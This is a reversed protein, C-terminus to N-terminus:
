IGHLADTLESTIKNLKGMSESVQMRLRFADTTILVAYIAACHSSSQAGGTGPIAKWMLFDLGIIFPWILLWHM